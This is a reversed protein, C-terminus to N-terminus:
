IQLKVSIIKTDTKFNHEEQPKATTNKKTMKVM